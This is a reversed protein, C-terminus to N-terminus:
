LDRLQAQGDQGGSVSMDSYEECTEDSGYTSRPERQVLFRLENLGELHSCLAALRSAVSGHIASNPQKPDLAAASLGSRPGAGPRGSRAAHAGTVPRGRRAGCRSADAPGAGDPRQPTAGGSCAIALAGSSAPLYM